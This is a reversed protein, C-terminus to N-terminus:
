SAMAANDKHVFVKGGLFAAYTPALQVEVVPIDLTEFAVGLHITVDVRGLVYAGNKPSASM